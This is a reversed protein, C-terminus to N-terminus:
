GTFYSAIMYVSASFWALVALDLLAKALFGALNPM